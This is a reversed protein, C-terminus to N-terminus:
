FLTLLHMRFYIFRPIVLVVVLVRLLGLCSLSFGSVFTSSLFPVLLSHTSFTSGLSLPLLCSLYVFLYSLGPVFTSSLFPLCVFVFAWLCLYFAPFPRSSLTNFLYVFLYSLGSAFTSPLFPVLLSHTSFTSSLFPVLLSHTSFTSLNTKSVFAFAHPNL